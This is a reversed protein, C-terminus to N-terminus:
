KSCVLQIGGHATREQVRYGKLQMQRKAVELQYNQKLTHCQEGIRNVLGFGGLWGDFHLVYGAPRVGNPGVPRRCVGVEYPRRSEDQEHDGPIGIAHECHGLDAATLGEPLPEDGVSVGFWRYTKQNRRLELGLRVCARELADLDKIECEVTAIHSM